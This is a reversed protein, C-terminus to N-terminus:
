LTSGTDNWYVSRLNGDEDFALPSCDKAVALWYKSRDIQGDGVLYEYFGRTDRIQQAARDCPSNDPDEPGEWEGRCGDCYIYGFDARIASHKFM